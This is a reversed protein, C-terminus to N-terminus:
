DGVKVLHKGVGDGKLMGVYAEPAHELGEIITERFTLQGDALWSSLQKRALGFTSEFHVFHFPKITISKYLLDRFRALAIPRDDQYHAILGCLAITAHPNAVAIAADLMRAGVNEFHLDVGNPVAAALRQEFDASKYDICADFGCEEVVYACKGAGGAIGIVKCGLQKAIQGVISGVTGAAASVTLTQGAQANLVQTVGVWATLGSSGLIGLYASAPMASARIRNLEAEPRVDVDQWHANCLVLDGAQFRESNSEIVRSVTRGVIIGESWEAQPGQWERMFKALYPDISLFLPRTLVEGAGLTPLTVEDLYFDDTRILESPRGRLRWRRTTVSM